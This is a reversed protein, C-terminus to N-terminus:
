SRISRPVDQAHAALYRRSWWASGWTRCLRPNGVEVACPEHSLKVNREHIKCSVARSRVTFATRRVFSHSGAALQICIGPTNASRELLWEKCTSQGTVLSYQLCEKRVDRVSRNWAELWTPGVLSPTSLARHQQQFRCASRDLMVLLRVMTFNRLKTACQGWGCIVRNMCQVLVGLNIKLVQLEGCDRLFKSPLILGNAAQFYATRSMRPKQYVPM